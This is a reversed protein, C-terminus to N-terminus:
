SALHFKRLTLTPSSAIPDTKLRAAASSNNFAHASLFLAFSSFSLVFIPLSKAM